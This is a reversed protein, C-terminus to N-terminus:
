SSGLAQAVEIALQLLAILCALASWDPQEEGSM